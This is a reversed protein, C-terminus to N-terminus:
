KLPLKYTAPFTHLTRMLSTLIALQLNGIPNDRSEGIENIYSVQVVYSTGPMLPNITYNLAQPPLTESTTNDPVELETITYNIM